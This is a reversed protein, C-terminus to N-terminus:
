KRQQSAKLYRISECINYLIDKALELSKNELEFYTCLM